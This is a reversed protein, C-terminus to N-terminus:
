GGDLLNRVTEAMDNFSIPKMLFKRIGIKEARVADMGESYGTCLIIPIDKRIAMMEAALREGTMGPMTMDSIVLDFAEPSERFVALADIASGRVAVQYGLIELMEQTLNMIEPEDDVILIKETGGKITRSEVAEDADEEEVEPLYVHFVTGENMKSHVTISGGHSKVIGHTVALGLGTGRGPEKTTFYPDFIRELVDPNIGHGSDAVSLKIYKGPNLDPPDEQAPRTVEISSLSIALVGGTAQMAHFANTCLNMFVQHIQVPDGVICGKTSIEKQIDITVPITPRLLKLAENILVHVKMRVSAQESRRSFQLIQRVLDRAREASQHIVNLKEELSDPEDIKLLALESYGLLSSLINNFDHAIGGALTGIAEMNQAQRLQKQLQSKEAEAKKRESIDIYSELICQQDDFVIRSTTKYVSLPSGDPRQLTQEVLESAPHFGHTESSPPNEPHMLERLLSGSLEQRSRQVMQAMMPNAYVIRRTDPNVVLIGTQVNDLINKFREESDRLEEVARVARLAECGFSAIIKGLEKDQEVFPPDVSNHLATIAAVVGTEDLLPFVLVSADSYGNYGSPRFEASQGMDSVLVAEKSQMATNFISNQALPFPIFDPAHLPDLANVLQLGNATVRYFSGGTAGMHEGFAKLLRTGFGRVETCASLNRTTDLITRLRDNITQLSSNAELLAQTRLAVMKELELQYRQNERLLRSKELAKKVAHDLVSMDAVPKLLFDWAGKRLADVSDRILGTGSVVIVPMDPADARIRDLVELGDVEPMRLDVLVLDPKAAHFVSLGERGNEASLVDYDLDELFAAFSERVAKEDDIVLITTQQASM